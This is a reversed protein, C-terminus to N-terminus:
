KKAVTEEKMIKKDLCKIAVVRNTLVQSAMYVKGFSGKGLLKLIRYYHLTTKPGELSIKFSTSIDKKLSSVEETEGEEKEIRSFLEALRETIDKSAKQEELSSLPKNGTVTTQQTFTKKGSATTFDGQPVPNRTKPLFVPLNLKEAMCKQQLQSHYGMDLSSCGRRKELRYDPGYLIHDASSDLPRDDLDRWRDSQDASHEKREKSSGRAVLDRFSQEPHIRLRKKVIPKKDIKGSVKMNNISLNKLPGSKEYKQAKWNGSAKRKSVAITTNKKKNWDPAIM